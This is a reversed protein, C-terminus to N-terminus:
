YKPIRELINLLDKAKNVIDRKETLKQLPITMHKKVLDQGGYSIIKSLINLITGCIPTIPELHKWLLQGLEMIFIEEVLSALNGLNANVLGEITTLAGIKAQLPMNSNVVIQKLNEYMDPGDQTDERRRKKSTKPTEEYSCAPAGPAFTRNAPERQPTGPAFTADFGPYSDQFENLYPDIFSPGFTGNAEHNLSPPPPLLEAYSSGNNNTSWSEENNSEQLNTPPILQKGGVM